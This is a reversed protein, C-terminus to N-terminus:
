RLLNRGERLVHHLAGHLEPHHFTFGTELLRAPAVRASALLAEDAMEGFAIRLAASPVFLVVPRGLVEGLTRSFVRNTVPGPAVGNVPGALSEDLLAQEYVRVLDDLAIWSMYQGGSGLPGGLGLRFVTLMPPLLGGDRALVLGTRIRVVRIGAAEAPATAAEWDEGLEALFGTGPESRETLVEDGRDGYIGIASASVLVAPKDELEALAECLLTTGDVRSDRIRRKKEASWRGVGINEGALHVVSDAGELRSTEIAGAAPDWYATSSDADERRRVLRVVEHGQGELASVLASGILGSSGSVIIRM